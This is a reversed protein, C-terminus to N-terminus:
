RILRNLLCYIPFLCIALNRAIRIRSSIIIDSEQGQGDMWPSHADDLIQKISM